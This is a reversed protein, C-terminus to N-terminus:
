VFTLVSNGNREVREAVERLDSEDNCRVTVKGGILKVDKVKDINKGLIDNLMQQTDSISGEYGKDLVFCCKAVGIKGPSISVSPAVGGTTKNGAGSQKEKQPSPTFTDLITYANSSDKDKYRLVMESGVFVVQTKVQFFTKYKYAATKFEKYKERFSPPCDKDIKVGAPLKNPGLAGLILNRQSADGLEVLCTKAENGKGLSIVRKIDVKGGQVGLGDFLSKVTENTIPKLGHIVLNMATKEIDRAVSLKYASIQSNEIEGKIENKIEDKITQKLIEMENQIKKIEGRNEECDGAIASTTEKLQQLDIKIPETVSEIQARTNAHQSTILEKLEDLKDDMKTKKNTKQDGTSIKRKRGKQGKTTPHKVDLASISRLRLKIGENEGKKEIEWDGSKQSDESNPTQEM